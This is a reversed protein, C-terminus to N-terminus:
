LLSCHPMHELPRPQPQLRGPLASYPAGLASCPLTSRPDALIPVSWALVPCVMSVSLVSRRAIFLLSDGLVHCLSCRGCHACGSSCWASSHFSRALRFWHSNWEPVRWLGHKVIDLDRAWLFMIIERLVSHNRLATQDLTQHAKATSITM